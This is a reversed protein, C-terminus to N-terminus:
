ILSCSSTKRYTPSLLGDYDVVDELKVALFGGSAMARVLHLASIGNENDNTSLWNKVTWLKKGNSRAYLAGEVKLGISGPSRADYAAEVNNLVLVYPTAANSNFAAKQMKIAKVKYGNRGFTKEIYENTCLEFRRSYVGNKQFALQVNEDSFNGVDWFVTIGEGPRITVAEIVTGKAKPYACATLALVGAVVVFCFLFQTVCRVFRASKTFFLSAFDNM